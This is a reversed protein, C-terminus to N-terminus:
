RCCSFVQQSSDPTEHTMTEIYGYKSHPLSDFVEVVCPHGDEIWPVVGVVGLSGFNLM